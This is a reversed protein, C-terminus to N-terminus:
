ESINNVTFLFKCDVSEGLNNKELVQSYDDIEPDNILFAYTSNKDSGNVLYKYRYELYDDYDGKFRDRSVDEVYYFDEGNYSLYGYIPDGEVTFTVIVISGAINNEVDSIFKDYSNQGSLVTNYSLAYCNKDFSKDYAAPYMSLLDKIEDLSKHESSLESIWRNGLENLEQCPDYSTSYKTGNIILQPNYANIKTESGDTMYITFEVSQGAYEKSDENYVTLKSLIKILEDIHNKDNTTVTKNPPTCTVKVSCIEDTNLNGFPKVGASSCSIIIACTIISALLALLKKM